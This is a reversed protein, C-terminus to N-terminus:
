VNKKGKNIRDIISKIVFRGGERHVLRLKSTNPPEVSMLEHTLHELVKLGANTNFAAAYISNLESEATAVQKMVTTQVKAMAVTKTSNM